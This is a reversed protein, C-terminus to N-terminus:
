KAAKLVKDYKKVKYKKHLEKLWEKELSNQYDTIVAGRVDNVEEPQEIVKQDYAFYSKWTQNPTEPKEGGFALYDIIKNDGKAVVVREVKVNKGFEKKLAATFAEQGLNKLDSNNDLYTHAADLVSDNQAFIVYGKFRPKDWNSYDSRHANYYNTLGVTDNSAKEWVKKNSIDFLLIGDRYENVLNRYEENTNYLQEAGIEFMAQNFSNEVIREVNANLADVPMDPRLNASKLAEGLTVTKGAATYVPVNSAKIQAIAISDTHYGNAALINKIADKYGNDIASGSAKAIEELKALVPRNIRGDREMMSIISPRMDELPKVGRQDLKNIIHYGYSTAFPESIQGPALAFSVSDFEAVMRGPGFWDLNGGKSASGPDQSERRAVDAFDAGNTVVKYISDIKQKVAAKAEDDMGQTLLLIHSVNVEGKPDREAEPRIIHYGIGSNIVESIQGIPTDYATKEFTWPYFGTGSMWAMRGGNVASRKDLSNDKAAQEFTTTGAFIAERISDMKQKGNPDRADLMIHSVYRDKLTHAYAEEILQEEVITDRLYPRALDSRFKDFEEKFSVTTDLHEHIADAVKLKYNIFMDVYQDFTVPEIQQSNNKNYLYEFESLYVDRGDITFAVPETPKAAFLALASGGIALTLLLNKM